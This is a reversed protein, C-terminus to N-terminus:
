AVTPPRCHAPSPARSAPLMPFVGREDRPPGVPGAVAMHGRGTAWRPFKGQWPKRAVDPTAVTAPVTRDASCGLLLHICFYSVTACAAAICRCGQLHITCIHSVRVCFLICRSFGCRASRGPAPCVADRHLAAGGWHARVSGIRSGTAAVADRYRRHHDRVQRSVCLNAIGFCVLKMRCLRTTYIERLNIGGNCLPPHRLWRASM